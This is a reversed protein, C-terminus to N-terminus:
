TQISPPCEGLIRGRAISNRGRKGEQILAIDIEYLEKTRDIQNGLVLLGECDQLSWDNASM